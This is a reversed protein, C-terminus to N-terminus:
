NGMFVQIPVNTNDAFPKDKISNSYNKSASNITAQTKAVTFTITENRSTIAKGETQGGMLKGTIARGDSCTLNFTWMPQVYKSSKGICLAGTKDSKVEIVARGYMPDYYSKGTFTENYNDYKATINSTCGSAVFPMLALMGLIFIKKKM